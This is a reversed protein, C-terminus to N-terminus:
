VLWGPKANYGYPTFNVSPRNKHWNAKVILHRQSCPSAPLIGASGAVMCRM